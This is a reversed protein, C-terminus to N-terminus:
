ALMEDQMARRGCEPCIGSVNGTLNYGCGACCGDCQRLRRVRVILFIVLHWAAIGLVPLGFITLLLWYRISVWWVRGSAESRGGIKVGVWDNTMDSYDHL